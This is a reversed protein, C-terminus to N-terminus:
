SESCSAAVSRLKSASAARRQKNTSRAATRQLSQRITPLQSRDWLRINGIRKAPEPGYTHLAHNLVHLSENTERALDHLTFTTM